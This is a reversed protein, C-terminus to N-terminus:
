KNHIDIQQNPITVNLEVFKDNVAKILDFYVTWYDANKVWARAAITVAGNEKKLVKIFPAPDTLVLKHSLYVERIQDMVMDVDDNYSINFTLDVRLLEKQSYNVIKSNALTGNPIM